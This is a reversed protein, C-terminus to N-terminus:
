KERLARALWAATDGLREGSVGLREPARRYAEAAPALLREAESAPLLVNRGDVLAEFRLPRPALAAAVDGLDGATLAGPVVADHPVYCYTDRLLAAYGPLTGRALVARVGDEYLAGFLALLGAGPESQAPPEGEGILPDAFGAPNTPAFSEGWLAVRRADLDRRARLARLVARLDHLRLGLMTRGFMLETASVSTAESQYGRGGEPATEGTGRLDPLCVAVGRELLGAIEAARERLFRSKGEQCIGIVLPAKGGHSPLLLALAVRIGPATELALREVRLSPLEEVRAAGVERTGSPEIDGLLGRWDRRLRRRQEAPQLGALKRRATGAREAGLGAYIEHPPRPQLRAKLEPTLCTLEEPSRREQTERSVRIDFWRALAPHILARQVPGVNNCHTAEPPQGTVLGAGHTFALRDAADYFGYIRQLRKWVPDRERDWSFEHAYVLRRPAVSGVIVWPLFGDRASLRLNRTSEWYGSGMTNFSTEADEPLPYRTEPQPGGFNFPIVCKVRPDLAAVVAAPDGGGAVSGILVIREPDAGRALLLDIGRMTDWAMWGALSDGIAHLQLSNVYRFRYDQRNGPQHSRREGYGPQDPVLVACGARAWTMGMDQLEGQTKPNHHSHILVIGPMRERPPAPLYLNATVRVGPRSEYVLNEIRCGALELSGGVRVDLDRPVAPLVGLSRRLARIRPATFREWDERSRVRSWAERDARNVAERRTRADARLMAAGDPVGVHLDLPELRAALTDGAEVAEGGRGAGAALAATLAALLSFGRTNRRM